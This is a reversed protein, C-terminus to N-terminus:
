WGDVLCDLLSRFWPTPELVGFATVAEFIPIFRADVLARAKTFPDGRCYSPAAAIVEACTPQAFRPRWGNTVKVCTNCEAQAYNAISEWRSAPLLASFAFAAGQVAKRLREPVGVPGCFSADYATADLGTAFGSQPQALYNLLARVREEKLKQLAAPGKIRAIEADSWYAVPTCEFAPDSSSDCVAQGCQATPYLDHDPYDTPDKWSNPGRMGWPTVGAGGRGVQCPMIQALQNRLAEIANQQVAAPKGVYTATVAGFGGYGM